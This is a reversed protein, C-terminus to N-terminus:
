VRAQVASAAPGDAAAASEVMPELGLNRVAPSLLSAFSVVAMGLLSSVAEGVWLLRFDRVSFPNQSRSM